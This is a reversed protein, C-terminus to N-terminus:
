PVYQQIRTVRNPLMIIARFHVGREHSYQSHTYCIIANKSICYGQQVINNFTDDADDDDDVDDDSLWLRGVASLDM